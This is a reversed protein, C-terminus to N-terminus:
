AVGCQIQQTSRNTGPFSVRRRWSDGAEAYSRNSCRPCIQDAKDHDLILDVVDFPGKGPICRALYVGRRTAMQGDEAEFDYRVECYVKHLHEKGKTMKKPWLRYPRNIKKYPTAYSDLHASSNLLAAYQTETTPPRDAREAAQALRKMQVGAGDCRNYGHYACLFFMYLAKGYREYASSENFYTKHSAFHPGHGLYESGGDVHKKFHHDMVDAMVFATTGGTKKDTVVNISNRSRCSVVTKDRWLVTLILNWMKGGEHNNMNVFDRYILCEHPALNAELKKIYPRCIEYQEIHLEYMVKLCRWKEQALVKQKYKMDTDPVGLKQLEAVEAVAKHYNAVHGPGNRHLKCPHLSVNWTYAVGNRKLIAYFTRADVPKVKRWQEPDWTAIQRLHVTKAEFDAGPADVKYGRRKWLSHQLKGRYKEIMHKRRTETEAKLDFQDKARDKWYKATLLCAQLVTYTKTNKHPLDLLEPHKDLLERLMQPYVAYLDAHLEWDALSVHLLQTTAGSPVFSSNKFFDVYMKEVAEPMSKRTCNTPRDQGITEKIRATRDVLKPNNMRDRAWGVDKPNLGLTECVQTDVTGPKDGECLKTQVYASEHHGFMPLVKNKM